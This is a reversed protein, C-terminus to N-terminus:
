NNLRRQVQEYYSALCKQKPRCLESYIILEKNTINRQDGDDTNGATEKIGRREFASNM